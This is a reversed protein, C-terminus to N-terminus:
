SHTFGTDTPEPQKLRSSIRRVYASSGLCVLTLLIAPLIGESRGIVLAGLWLITSFVFSLASAVVALLYPVQPYGQPLQIYYKSVMRGVLLMALLPFSLVLPVFLSTSM